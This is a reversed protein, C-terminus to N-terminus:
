KRHRIFSVENKPASDNRIGDFSRLIEESGCSSSRTTFSVFDGDADIFDRAILAKKISQVNASSELHKADDIRDTFYEDEVARGFEFPNEIM